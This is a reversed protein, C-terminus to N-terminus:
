KHSGHLVAHVKKAFAILKADTGKAGWVQVGVPKRIDGNVFGVPISLAPLGGLSAYICGEMWRHYTDMEKGAVSAPWNWEVPFPFCQASPLVLFDYIQFMEVLARWWKTRIISASTIDRASLNVGSEYEYIAEPKLINKRPPETANLKEVSSVINWSRLTCWAKWLSQYDNFPISVNKDVKVQINKDINNTKIDADTALHLHSCSSSTMKNSLSLVADCAFALLEPDTPLYGDLDGLWGIRIKQDSLLLSSSSSLPPTVSGNSSSSSISTDDFGLGISFPNSPDPGSGGIMVRLLMELDDPNRAMPGETSLQHAFLDPSLSLSRSVLGWSPRLGYIQNWAAPNRLSGMMDSGDALPVM